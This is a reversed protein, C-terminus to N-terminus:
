HNCEVNLSRELSVECAWIRTLVFFNHGPCTPCLKRDCLLFSHRSVTKQQLLSVSNCCLFSNRSMFFQTTVCFRQFFLFFASFPNQCTKLGM